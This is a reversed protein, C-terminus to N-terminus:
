TKNIIHEFYDGQNKICCEMREIWKEFTKMYEEKPISEVIGTIQRVLSIASPHDDLRQKIYDFLWFDSPALDPSYAPHNMITFNQENLYTIVAQHIHPRANDHHFKLNKTGCAKRQHKLTSVLPKLCYDIYSQHDITKHREMYTILEVGITRFFICVMTKPKFRGLRAITRPSQGEAVWSRNAQKRGIQRWYFWSEDGTLVDCLRWTGSKFKALNEKCMRVRDQRNKQSLTHPVYRSAIKRLQLCDHIITQITGRSLNSQAEIEDYTCYPNDEIISRVLEINSDTTATIPRGCRPEDHLSQNGDKFHKVWRAVTAFSPGQYGRVTKFTM